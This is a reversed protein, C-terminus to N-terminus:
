FAEGLGFHFGFRSAGAFEEAQNIVYAVDFRVPGVSTLYRLGAGVSFQLGSPQFDAADSWVRGGDLFVVGLVNGYIRFRPELNGYAMLKGGTPVEASCEESTDFPGLSNAAWGRVTNGGGLYFREPRPVRSRAADGYPQIVGAGLRGALIFNDTHAPFLTRFARVDGDARLFAYNGGLGAEALRINWFFGRHPEVPDDRSDWTLGQEFVSLLGPDIVRDGFPSEDCPITTSGVNTDFTSTFYDIYQLRYGVSPTLHRYHAWALGARYSPSILRYGPQADVSLNVQNTVIWDRALRPSTLKSDLQVIPALQTRPDFQAVDGVTEVLTAVGARAENEWKWLHKGLHYDTYRTTSVLYQRGPELAFAVGAELERAATARLEINVPVATRSPDSLDPVVNVVSFTHLGFLNTRTTAVAKTTYARGEVVTVLSALLAPDMGPKGVFRVPGFTCTPGPKVDLRIRVRQEEPHAEVEGHVQAYAYSNAHLYAEVAGIASRYADRDFIAGPDIEVLSQLRRRMPVPLRDLGTFEVEDVRSPAGQEVHGVLDVPHVRRRPHDPPATVEWGLFRADFYGHNAYWVEIRQGDADLEAPDLWAPEVYGPVVFSQWRPLPHNMANRLARDTQPAFM